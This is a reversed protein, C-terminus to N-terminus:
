VTRLQEALRATIAAWDYHSEARQRATSALAAARPLDGLMCEIAALWDAASEAALYHTDPQADIGEIGLGTSVLPVGAAFAELVKLRTGGGSFLPVVAVRATEYHPEVRPVPGVLRIGPHSALAQVAPVPRSGVIRFETKPFRARVGPWVQRVFFQLAEINPAYDLSGVFLVHQRREDLPIPRFASTDVGNPVVAIRASPVWGRLLDAERQSCVLNLAVPSALVSREVRELLRATHRAYWGHLPTPAARAYRWLVESEINHWNWVQPTAPALRALLPRYSEMHISEMWLWDPSDPLAKLRDEVAQGFAADRFRWTTFPVRRLVAGALVKPTYGPPRPFAAWRAFDVPEPHDNPARFALLEIQSGRHALNRLLHYERLKAGTDPPSCSRPSLVFINM